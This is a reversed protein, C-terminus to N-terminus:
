MCMGTPKTFLYEQNSRKGNSDYCGWPVGMMDCSLGMFVDFALSDGLVLFDREPESFVQQSQAPTFLKTKCTSPVFVFEENRRAQQGMQHKHTLRVSWESVHTDPNRWRFQM